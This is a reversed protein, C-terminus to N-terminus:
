PRSKAAPPSSTKPAPKAKFNKEPIPEAKEPPPPPTPAPESKYFGRSENAAANDATVEPAPLAIGSFSSGVIKVNMSDGANASGWNESGQFSLFSPGFLVAAALGAHLAISMVVFRDLKEPVTM